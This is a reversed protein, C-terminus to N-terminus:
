DDFIDDMANQFIIELEKKPTDKRIFYCAGMDSSKEVSQRSAQATLMFVAADPDYEMIADLAELGDMDPMNIDMIVLDPDLTKYKELGERGNCAEHIQQIGLKRLIFKVFLRVHPEDDVLLALDPIAM